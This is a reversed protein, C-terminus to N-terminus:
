SVAGAVAEQREAARTVREVEALVSPDMTFSHKATPFSGARVDDAYRSVADKIQEGLDAYQGAHRPVFDTFLGLLDHIVQVQGDCHPGAGIGITPIRLRRTVEAALPAPIGELVIGFAGAGELAEADALLRTAVSVTRGQVKHGSLQHVSQPTLGIHGMVPVGADVIRRVTEAVTVGGELKVAGAGGERMLRGANRMAEEVSAQYSMFPLDAVILARSTGRVVAQTHRVMDDMTAHITAEYGLVVSALSDGVLLMPIGAADLLKAVSYEYATLMAIREGRQKMDQIQQITTRM